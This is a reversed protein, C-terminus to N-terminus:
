DDLASRVDALFARLAARGEVAKRVCMSGIVVGDAGLAMAERAQAPTGIGFGLLIPRAVGARRLRDIAEGLAPDLSPRPGTVGAAAQLMVYGDFSRARVADDEDHGFPVLGCRRVAFAAGAEDIRARDPRHERGILLLGDLARLMDPSLREFRLDDYAMCVGAPASARTDLWELCAGLRRYPDTGSALARRMAGAVDPGDLHPDATPLGLEVIDVGEDAYLGRVDDDFTPDGLAFYTALLARGSAARRDLRNTDGPRTDAPAVAM